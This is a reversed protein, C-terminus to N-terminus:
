NIAKSVAKNTSFKLKEPLRCGDFHCRIFTTGRTKAGAFDVTDFTCDRFVVNVLDLEDMSMFRFSEGAIDNGESILKLLTLRNM